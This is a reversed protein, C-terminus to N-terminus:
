SDLGMRVIHSLNPRFTYGGVNFAVEHGEQDTNSDIFKPLEMIVKWNKEGHVFTGLSSEIKPSEPNSPKRVRQTPVVKFDKFILPKDPRM